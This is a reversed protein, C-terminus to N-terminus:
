WALSVLLKMGFALVEVGVSENLVVDADEQGLSGVVVVVVVVEVADVADVEVDVAVAVVVM